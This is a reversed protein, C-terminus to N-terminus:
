KKPVGFAMTLLFGAAYATATGMLYGVLDTTILAGPLGSVGVAVSGVGCAAIVAGGCAGGLCATVFPRGLPLTVGYILPEGIGMFGLPLGAAIRQRLGDDKMRLYLAMSAGVQGAGAMSLIPLLPTAGLLNILEMHIPTLIHHLGLMVVPLWLGGAIFGTVAGGQSLLATVGHYIGKSMLGGVPQLIFVAALGSVTLTLVPTFILDFYGPIIKRLRKELEAGFFAVLLVAIIGGRGPQLAEGDLSIQALAPSSLFAGLAGGLMPSGGFEKATLVGTLISLSAGAMSGLIGLLRMVAGEALQPYVTRMVMTLGSLLGCGVFLPILPLFINGMRKISRHFSTDPKKPKDITEHKEPREPSFKDNLLDKNESSDTKDSQEQGVSDTGAAGEQSAAAEALLGRFEDGTRQAHGPGVVVQLEDDEGKLVGLVGAIKKLREPAGEPVTRLTLRLRTMCNAATIINEKPGVVAFIEEALKRYDKAM